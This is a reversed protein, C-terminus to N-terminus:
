MKIQLKKKITLGLYFKNVLSAFRKKTVITKSNIITNISKENKTSSFSKSQHSVMSNYSNGPEINGSNKNLVM